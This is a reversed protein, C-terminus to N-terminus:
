IFPQQTHPKFQTHLRNSHYMMFYIHGHNISTSLLATSNMVGDTISHASAGAGDEGESLTITVGAGPMDPSIVVSARDQSVSLSDGASLVVESATTGASVPADGMSREARSSTSRMSGEM